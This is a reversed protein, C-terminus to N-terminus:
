TRAGLLAFFSFQLLALYWLANIVQLGHWARRGRFVKLSLGIMAPPVLAVCLFLVPRPETPFSSSGGLLVLLALAAISTGHLSGAIAERLPASKPAAFFFVLSVVCPVAVAFFLGLIGVGSTM